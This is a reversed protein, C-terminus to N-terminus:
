REGAEAGPGLDLLRRLADAVPQRVDDDPRVPEQGLIHLELVQAQAAGTTHAEILGAITNVNPLAQKFATKEDIGELISKISNGLWPSGNYVRKLEKIIAKVELNM